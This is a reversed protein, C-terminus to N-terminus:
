MELWIRPVAMLAFVGVGVEGVQVAGPVGVAVCHLAQPAATSEVAVKQVWQPAAIVWEASLV